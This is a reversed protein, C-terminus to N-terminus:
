VAPAPAKAYSVIRNVAADVIDPPTSAGGIVGVEKVGDLWEGRFPL